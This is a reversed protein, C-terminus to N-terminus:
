AAVRGLRNGSSVNRDITPPGRVSATRRRESNAVKGLGLLADPWQRQVGQFRLGGQLGPNLFKQPWGTSRLQIRLGCLSALQLFGIPLVILYYSGLVLIFALVYGSCRTCNWQLNRHDVGSRAAPKMTMASTEPRPPRVM